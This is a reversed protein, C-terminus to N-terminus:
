AIDGVNEVFLAINEHPVVLEKVNVEVMGRANLVARAASDLKRNALHLYGEGRASGRAARARQRDTSASAHSYLSGLGDRERERERQLGGRGRGKDEGKRGAEKLVSLAMACRERGEELKGDQHEHEDREESVSREDRHAVVDDFWVGDGFLPVKHAEEDNCRDHTAYGETRTNYIYIYIYICVCRLVAIADGRRGREEGARTERISEV